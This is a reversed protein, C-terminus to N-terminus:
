PCYGVLGLLDQPKKYVVEISVGNL